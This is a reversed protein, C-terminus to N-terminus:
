REKRRFIWPFFFESSLLSKTNPLIVQILSDSKLM